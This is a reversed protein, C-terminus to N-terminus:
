ATLAFDMIYKRYFGVLGLFGRVQKLKTPVPYSIIAELKDPNPHIGEPTLVHGLFTVRKVAFSCKRPHLKLTPRGSGHYFM